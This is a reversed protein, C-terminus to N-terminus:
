KTDKPPTTAHIWTLCDAVSLNSATSKPQTHRPVPTIDPTYSRAAFAEQYSTRFRPQSVNNWFSKLRNNMCEAPTRNFTRQYVTEVSGVDTNATPWRLLELRKTNDLSSSCRRRGGKESSSMDSALHFRNEHKSFSHKEPADAIRKLFATPPFPKAKQRFEENTERRLADYRHGYYGSPFWSGSYHSVPM